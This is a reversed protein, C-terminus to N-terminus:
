YSLPPLPQDYSRARSTTTTLWSQRRNLLRSRTLYLAVWTYQLDLYFKRTQRRSVTPIQPIRAVLVQSNPTELHNTNPFNLRGSSSLLISFFISISLLGCIRPLFLNTSDPPPLAHPQQGGTARSTRKHGNDSDMDRSTHHLQSCEHRQHYDSSEPEETPHVHAQDIIICRMALCTNSMPHFRGKFSPQSTYIQSPSDHTHFFHRPEKDLLFVNPPCKLDILLLCCSPSGLRDLFFADHHKVLMPAVPQAM